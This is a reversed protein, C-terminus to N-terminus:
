RRRSNGPVFASFELQLQRHQLFTESADPSQAPVHVLIRGNRREAMGRAVALEQDPDSLSPGGTDRIWAATELNLERELKIDACIWAGERLIAKQKAFRVLVSM